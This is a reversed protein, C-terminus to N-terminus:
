SSKKFLNFYISLGVAPVFAVVTIIDITLPNIALGFINNALYTIFSGPLNKEGLQRKIDWAVDTLLCYGFGYWIGLVLWSFLTIAILGLHAKRWSPIVWGLLNFVIVSIHLIFLAIDIFYLM